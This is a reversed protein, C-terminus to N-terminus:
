SGPPQGPGLFPFDTWDRGGEDTIFADVTRTDDINEWYGIADSGCSPRREVCEEGSVDVQRSNGEVLMRTASRHRWGKDSKLRRGREGEGRM